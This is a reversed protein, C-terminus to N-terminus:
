LVNTQMSNWKESQGGNVYSTKSNKKGEMEICIKVVEGFISSYSDSKIDTLNNMDVLFMVSVLFSGQPVDSTVRKRDM